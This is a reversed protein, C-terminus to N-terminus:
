LVGAASWVAPQRLGCQEVRRMSASDYQSRRWVGNRFLSAIWGATSGLTAFVSLDFGGLWIM